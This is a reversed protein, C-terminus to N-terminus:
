TRAYVSSDMCACMFHYTGVTLSDGMFVLRKGALVNLAEAKSMFRFSTKLSTELKAMATKCAPKRMMSTAAATPEGNHASLVDAPDMQRGLWPVEGTKVFQAQLELGGRLEFDGHSLLVFASVLAAAVAVAIRIEGLRTWLRPAHGVAGPGLAM